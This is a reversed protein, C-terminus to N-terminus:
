ETRSIDYTIGVHRLRDILDTEWFATSPTLVGSPVYGEEKNNLIALACQMVIRPTAVYGAEPGRVVVKIEKNPPVSYGPTLAHDYGKSRLIIEFSSQDLQEQSPHVKSFLGGSFLQPHGLLLNRGWPSGALFSFILGYFTYLFVGWLSPILLYAAFQVTPPLTVNPKGKETKALGSLFIQQSLRVVSPDAFVFPVHYGYDKDRTVTKHFGL